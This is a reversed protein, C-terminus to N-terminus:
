NGITKTTNNLLIGGAQQGPVIVEFNEAAGPRNRQAEQLNWYIEKIGDSRGKIIGREMAKREGKKRLAYITEAAGVGVAAGAATALANGDGLRHGVVAGGAALAVDAIPRGLQACGTVLWGSVLITILKLTRM